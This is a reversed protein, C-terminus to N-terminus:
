LRVGDIFKTTEGANYRATPGSHSAPGVQGEDQAHNGKPQKGKNTSRCLTRIDQM